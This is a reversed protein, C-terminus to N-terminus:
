VQFTPHYFPMGTGHNLRWWNVDEAPSARSILSKVDHYIHPVSFFIITIIVVNSIYVTVFLTFYIWIM